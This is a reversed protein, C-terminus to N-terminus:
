PVTGGVPDDGHRRIKRADYAVRNGAVPFHLGDAPPSPLLPSLYARSISFRDTRPTDPPLCTHGPALHALLAEMDIVQPVALDALTLWEPKVVVKAPLLGLPTDRAFALVKGDELTPQAFPLTVFEAGWLVCM